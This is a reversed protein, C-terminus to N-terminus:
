APGPTASAAASPFGPLADTLLRSAADLEADTSTISVRLHQEARTAQDLVSLLQNDLSLSVDIGARFVSRHQLDAINHHTFAKGEVHSPQETHCEMWLVLRNQPHRVLRFKLIRPPSADKSALPDCGGPRRRIVPHNLATQLQEATCRMYDLDPLEAFSEEGGDTKRRRFLLRPASIRLVVGPRLLECKHTDTLLDLKEQSLHGEVRLRIGAQVGPFALDFGTPSASNDRVEILQDKHEELRPAYHGNLAEELERAGAATCEFRRGDIEVARQLPDVHLAGPKTMLGHQILSAIGRLGTEVREQGRRAELAFHGMADLHVRFQVRGAAGPSGAASAGPAQPKVPAPKAQPVLSPHKNLEQELRAVADADQPRIHEGNVDVEGAASVHFSQPAEILGRMVWKYADLKLWPKGADLHITETGLTLSFGKPHGGGDRVL